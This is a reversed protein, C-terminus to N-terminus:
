FLPLTPIDAAISYFFIWSSDSHENDGGLASARKYYRVECGVCLAWVLFSCLSEFYFRSSHSLFICAFFFFFYLNFHNAFKQTPCFLSSSFVHMIILLETSNTCTHKTNIYISWSAFSPIYVYIMCKGVTPVTFSLDLTFEQKM